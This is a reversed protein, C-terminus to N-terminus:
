PRGKPSLAQALTTEFLDALAKQRPAPIEPDLLIIGSFAAYELYAFQAAAAADLGYREQYLGGLVALRTADAERIIADVAPLRRGLERIGLELKSDIEMAARTLAASQADAPAQADMAAAVDETQTKLWHQALTTLFLEHDQFHHYFSGRTLGAAKCIAELKVADCGKASLERLGLAIWDEERFRRKSM